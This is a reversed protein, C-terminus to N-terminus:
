SPPSGQLLLEYQIPPILINLRARLDQLRDLIDEFPGHLRRVTKADELIQLLDARLRREWVFSEHNLRLIRIHYLAAPTKGILEHTLPDEFIQVGYDWEECPNLFRIGRKRDAATPWYNLKANNCLRTSWMLNSYRHRDAGTLTPDFHDIEM